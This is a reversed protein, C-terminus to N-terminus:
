VVSLYNLGMMFGHNSHMLTPRLSPNQSGNTASNEEHYSIFFYNPSALM